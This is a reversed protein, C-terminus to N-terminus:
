RDKIIKECIKVVVSTLSVPRYNLPEEKNGGKFIPVIDARKWDTPVKGETLSSLIGAHIKDALQHSCKRLIWNSIGDLGVPGECPPAPPTAFARPRCKKPAAFIAQVQRGM